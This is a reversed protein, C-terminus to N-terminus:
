KLGGKSPSIGFRVIPQVVLQRDPLTTGNIEALLIRVLMHAIDGVPQNVSTLAPQLRQTGQSVDFAVVALDEGVRLHADQAARLVGMAPEDNICIIAAPPKPLEQLVKAARYGGKISSDAQVVLTEDFPLRNVTLGLRYGQYRDAHITLDETSGIFGIRKIGQGFLHSVLSSVCTQYDVHVSPYDQTDISREISAFPIHEEGLYKIRWDNQRIHSLVLGDVRRECVWRQYVGQETDGGSPATSVRLDYHNNAAEDALSSVFEDFYAGSFRPSSSTLVYGITDTRKRRLQRAAKNPLYGLERAVQLVRERTAEAVDPYGDLARSVTTISLNLQKAVDRITVPM